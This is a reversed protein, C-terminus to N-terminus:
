EDDGAFVFDSDSVKCGFWVPENPQTIRVHRSDLREADMVETFDHQGKCHVCKAPCLKVRVRVLRPRSPRGGKQTTLM